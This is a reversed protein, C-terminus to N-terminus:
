QDKAERRAEDARRYAAIARDARIRAVESRRVVRETQADRRQERGPDYWGVLHGLLRTWWSM